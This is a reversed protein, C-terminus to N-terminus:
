YYKSPMSGPFFIPIAIQALMMVPILLKDYAGVLFTSWSDAAWFPMIEQYSQLGVLLLSVGFPVIKEVPDYPVYVISGLLNFSYLGNLLLGAAASYWTWPLDIPYIHNYDHLVMFM